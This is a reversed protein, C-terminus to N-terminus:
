FSGSLALGYTADGKGSTWAVPTVQLTPENKERWQANARDAARGVLAADVFAFLAAVSAAVIGLPLLAPYNEKNMCADIESDEEFSNCSDWGPQSFEHYIIMWSAAVSLALRIAGM